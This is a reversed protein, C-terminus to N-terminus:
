RARRSGPSAHTRVLECCGTALRIGRAGLGQVVVGTGLVLALLLFVVAVPPLLVFFCLGIVALFLALGALSMPPRRRASEVGEADSRESSIEAALLDIVYTRIEDRKAESNSSETVLRHV